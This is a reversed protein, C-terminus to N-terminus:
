TVLNFTITVLFAISVDLVREFLRFENGTGFESIVLKRADLPHDTQVLIAEVTDKSIFHTEALHTLLNLRDSLTSVLEVSEAFLKKGKGNAFYLCMPGM